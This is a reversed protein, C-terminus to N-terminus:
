RELARAIERLLIVSRLSERLRSIARTVAARRENEALTQEPTPREDALDLASTAEDNCTESLPTTVRRQRLLM